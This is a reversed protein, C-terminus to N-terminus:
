QPPRDADAGTSGPAPRTREADQVWREIAERLAPLPLAGNELVRDHFDAMRFREGLRDRAESRLRLIELQGLKYTLAQAPSTIYRDVENEINAPSLLTNDRLFDIAQQRSWGFAHLGTDVM